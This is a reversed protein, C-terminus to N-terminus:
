IDLLQGYLFVTFRQGAETVVRELQSSSAQYSKQPDFSLLAFCSKSETCWMDAAFMGFIQCRSKQILAKDSSLM